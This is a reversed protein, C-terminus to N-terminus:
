LARIQDALAEPSYQDLFVKLDEVKVVPRNRIATHAELQKTDPNMVQFGTKERIGSIHTKLPPM